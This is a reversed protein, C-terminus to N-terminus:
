PGNVFQKMFTMALPAFCDRSTILDGRRGFAEERHRFRANKFKTLVRQLGTAVKAPGQHVGRREESMGRGEDRAIM